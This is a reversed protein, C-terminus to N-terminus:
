VLSYTLISRGASCCASTTSRRTDSGTISHRAIHCATSDRASSTACDRSEPKAGNRRASVTASSCARAASPKMEVPISVDRSLPQKRLTKPVEIYLLNNNIKIILQLNNRSIECREICKRKKIQVCTTACKSWKEWRDWSYYTGLRDVSSQNRQRTQKNVENDDGYDNYDDEVDESM